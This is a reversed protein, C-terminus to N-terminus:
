RETEHLLALIQRAQWQHRRQHANLIAYCESLTMKLFRFVPNRVKVSNLGVQQRRAEELQSIFRVQLDAFGELVGDKTLEGAAAPIFPKLTKVRFKYPPEFFSVIGKWVWRPKFPRDIDVGAAEGVHADLGNQMIDFYIEGHKILHHYCEAICWTDEAPRQLFVQEDLGSIFSEAQQRATRFQSIYWNYSYLNTM